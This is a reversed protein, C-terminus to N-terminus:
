RQSLPQILIKKADMDRLAIVAGRIYYAIPDGAPSQHLAEVVTGKILGLDIMRRREIGMSTLELVRGKEGILLRDLSTEISTGM